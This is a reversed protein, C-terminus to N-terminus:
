KKSRFRLKLDIEGEFECDEWPIDLCFLDGPRVEHSPHVPAAPFASPPAAYFSM